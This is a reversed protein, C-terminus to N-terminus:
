FYINTVEFTACTHACGCGGCVSHANLSMGILYLNDNVMAKVTKMNYRSTKGLVNM